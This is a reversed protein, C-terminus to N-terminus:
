KFICKSTVQLWVKNSVVSNGYNNRVYCRYYNQDRVSVQDIVYTSQIEGKLKRIGRRWQYDFPGVGKVIATFIASHTIEVSQNYPTVAVV